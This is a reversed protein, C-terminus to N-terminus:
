TTNLSALHSHTKSELHIDSSKQNYARNIFFSRKTTKNLFFRSCCFQNSNAKSSQQCSKAIKCAGCPSQNDTFNGKLGCVTKPLPLSTEAKEKKSLFLFLFYVTKFHKKKLAPRRRREISATRRQFSETLHVFLVSTSHCLATTPQHNTPPPQHHHHSVSGEARARTKASTGNSSKCRGQAHQHRKEEEEGAGKACGHTDKLRISM